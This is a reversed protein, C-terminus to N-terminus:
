IRGITITSIAIITLIWFAFNTPTRALGYAALTGISLSIGVVGATIFLSNILQKYLGNELWVAQYHQGTLGMVPKSLWAFAALSAFAENLVNSVLPLAYGFALLASLIMIIYAGIPPLRFREIFSQRFLWWRVFASILALCLAIGILSVGGVQGATEPGFIVKFPNANFADLPLKFSMVAIWALPFIAVVLWVAIVLATTIKLALPLQFLKSDQM